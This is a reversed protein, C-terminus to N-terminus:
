MIPIDECQSVSGRDGKLAMANVKGEARTRRPTVKPMKRPDLRGITHAEEVLIVPEPYRWVVVVAFGNDLCSGPTEPAFGMVEGETGKRQLVEVHM